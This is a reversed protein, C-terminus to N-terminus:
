MRVTENEGLGRREGTATSRMLEIVKSVAGSGVWYQGVQPRVEILIANDDSAGDEFWYDAGDVWHQKIAERRREIRAEGTVTVFRNADPDAFTLCVQPIASIEEDKHDRRDAIFRIVQGDKDVLPKMPRAHLGANGDTVLMCADIDEMHSWIEEYPNSM